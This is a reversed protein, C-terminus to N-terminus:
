KRVKAIEAALEKAAAEGALKSYKEVVPKLKERMRAIEEPSLETVAMGAKRLEAVAAIARDRSVKRQYATAEAAAEQVIKREAASMGDWTRRGILVSQPNYVHNTIALYKQVKDFKSDAIVSVPNEQGDVRKKELAQFVEPFPVPTPIAGLATFSDIVAPSQLVRLKLGAIDEMRNIPRKSNTIDRFGLDWYALGVLNKEAIRENLRRGFPGDMIADAEETTNFLFPLDVLATEKAVSALLGTNIVVMDLSGAQVASVTALDGGKVGGAFQEVKMKGGSKQAVLEAFKAVGLGQPHERSNQHALKLTREKVDQAHAAGGALAVIVLVAWVIRKV